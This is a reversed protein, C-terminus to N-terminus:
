CYQWLIYQCRRRVQYDAASGHGTIQVVSDNMNAVALPGSSPSSVTIRDGEQANQIVVRAATVVHNLDLDTLTLGHTLNVPTNAGETFVDSGTACVLLLPNDDTLNINIAGQLVNSAFQGDNMQFTLQRQSHHPEPAINRYTVLTLVQEYATM